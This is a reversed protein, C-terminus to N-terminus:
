DTEHRQNEQTLDRFFRTLAVSKTTNVETRMLDCWDTYMYDDIWLKGNAYITIGRRAHSEPGFHVQAKSMKIQKM